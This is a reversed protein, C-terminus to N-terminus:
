GQPAAAGGGGGAPPPVAYAAAPHAVIVPGAANRAPMAAARRCTLLALSVWHLMPPMGGVFGSCAWLGYGANALGVAWLEACLRLCSCRM